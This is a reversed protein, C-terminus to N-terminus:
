VTHNEVLFDWGGQFVSGLAVSGRSTTSVFTRFGHVVSSAKSLNTMRKRSLKIAAQDFGEKKHELGLKM